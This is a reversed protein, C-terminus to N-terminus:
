AAAGMADLDCKERVLNRVIETAHAGYVNATTAKNAHRAVYQGADLGLREVIEGIRRHRLMHWHLNDLGADLGRRRIINHLQARTFRTGLRSVFLAREDPKALEGRVALWAALHDATRANIGITGIGGGKNPVHVRLRAPEACCQPPRRPDLVDLAAVESVRLAADLGLRIMARDRINAPTSTPIADLVALLRDLEPAIVRDPRFKIRVETTPDHRVWGERIAYAFLSRVSGMRQACSRMSCGRRVLHDVWGDVMRESVLGVLTVDHAGAMWEAFDSLTSLYSRLTNTAYGRLRIRELYRDVAQALTIPEVRHGALTHLTAPSM